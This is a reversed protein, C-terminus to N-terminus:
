VSTVDIFTRLNSIPEVATHFGYICGEYCDRLRFLIMRQVAIGRVSSLRHAQRFLM